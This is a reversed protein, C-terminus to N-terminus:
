IDFSAPFHGPEIQVKSAARGLRTLEPLNKANDMAYLADCQRDTHEIGLTKSLWHPQLALEYRLYSMMAPGGGLVDASLDGVEADIEWPTPSRSMWQLVAQGLWNADQMISVVSEAALKIAPMKVVDAAPVSVPRFGTGVSVLLLQDEGFPWQLGYGSCTGMMLVQMSPNNYPSIGGDVFAGMIHPAVNLLEPEFYHPAATSARIVNRLLFHRNGTGAAGDPGDYFKGRPNNHLLWPSGTDLRKTMVMLGTKLKKSGLTEDKFFRSLARMLPEKPFKAGLVGFRLFSEEFVEVGLTHYVEILEEVSMGTALGAAIISGTSTGGILDFYDCLRFDPDDGFRARLIDEIRALYGLSLAGRVGGGDLSLMRKPGDGFLHDDLTKYAM